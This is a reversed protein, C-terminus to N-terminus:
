EERQTIKQCVDILRSCYACEELSRICKQQCTTRRVLWKEDIFAPTLDVNLNQILHIISYHYEKKNAYVEVLSKERIENDDILEFVDIYNDYWDASQPVAFFHNIGYDNQNDMSFSDGKVKHPCVRIKIGCNRIYKNTKELDFVLPEGLLIDSVRYFKLIQIMAWTTAPHHYMYRGANMKSYERLDRLDFFDYDLNTIEKQLNCLKDITPNATIRDIEIIVRKGPNSEAYYIANNLNNIKYRVEDVFALTALQQRNSTCYKM